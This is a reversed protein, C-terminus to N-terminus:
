GRRVGQTRPAPRRVMTEPASRPIERNGDTSNGHMGPTESGAPISGAKRYRRDRYQRGRTVVVDAGPVRYMEHSFVRGAHVETLAEAPVERSGGCSELGSHTAVGEGYPEKM